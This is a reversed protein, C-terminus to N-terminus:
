LRQDRFHCGGRYDVRHGSVYAVVVFEAEGLLHDIREREQFAFISKAPYRGARLQNAILTPRDEHIHDAFNPQVNDDAAVAAPLVTRTADPLVQDPLPSDVEWELVKGFGGTGFALEIRRSQDYAIPAIDLTVYRPKSPEDHVM